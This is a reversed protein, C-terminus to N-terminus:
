LKFFDCWVSDVEVFNLEKFDPDLFFCTSPPAPNFVPSGEFSHVLLPVALRLPAGCGSAQKGWSVLSAM